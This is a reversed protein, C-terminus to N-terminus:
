KKVGALVRVSLDQFTVFVFFLVTEAILNMESDTIMKIFVPMIAGLGISHYIKSVQERQKDTLNTYIRVYERKKLLIMLRILRTLSRFYGTKM